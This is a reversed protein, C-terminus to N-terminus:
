VASLAADAPVRERVVAANEVLVGCIQSAPGALIPAADFRRERGDDTCVFHSHHGSIALACRREIEARMPEPFQLAVKEGTRPGVAIKLDRNFVFLTLPSTEAGGFWVAGAYLLAAVVAISALVGIVTFGLAASLGTFVIVLGGAFLLSSAIRKLRPM